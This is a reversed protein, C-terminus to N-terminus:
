TPVLRKSRQGRLHRAWWLALFLAAGVSLAVGVGSVATSRVTVRTEGLVLQGDPSVLEVRLPFSGSTNARVTVRQTLNSRTLEIPITDGRPFTLPGSSLRLAARIPYPIESSITIPIEGERATLTISRNGPLAVLDLVDDIQANAGALLERRTARSVQGSESALLTRDVQEVIPNFPSLVQVLSDLRSRVTRVGRGDIPVLSPGPDDELTRVTEVGRQELPPVEDFMTALTQSSLVPSNALGQLLADVFRPTAQWDGPPVVAVGRSLGPRDFYLVALDALLHHAALAPDSESLFHARLGADAAAAQMSEGRVRLRFTQTLTIELDLPTLTAEPVVVRTVGRRLLHALTAEDLNEDSVWIGASIDAGSVQAGVAAAARIAQREAENGLGVELLSPLSTDVYHQPLFLRGPTTTSLSTLVTRGKTGAGNALADLTEGKPMVTFPVTTRGFAAVLAALRDVTDDDMQFAGDVDTAVPAGFPIAVGVSLKEGEIPEPLHVLYTTFADVVDGSATERLELRVPYVGQRAVATDLALSIVGTPDAVLAPVPFRELRLASRRVRGDLTQTFESRSTIRPYIALAVELAEPPATTTVRFRLSAPEAGVRWPTQGIFQLGDDDTPAPLAPASSAATTTTPQAPQTTSTEESPEVQATTPPATLLTLGCLLALVARRFSM